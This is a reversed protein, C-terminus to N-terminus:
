CGTGSEGGATDAVTPAQRSQGAYAEFAHHDVVQVKGPGVWEAEQVDFRTTAFTGALVIGASTIM